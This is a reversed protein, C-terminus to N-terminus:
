KLYDVLSPTLVKAATALAAQYVYSKESYEVSAQAVDVDQLSSLVTTMATKDTENRSKAADLRNTKAGVVSRLSLVQSSIDDLKTLLTGTLDSVNTNSKLDNKIEILTNFLDSNGPGSSAASASVQFLSNGDTNVSMQVGQALPYDIQGGDGNYTIADGNRTLPQSSTSYGGFMYQSGNMSNGDEVMQSIIQDVQEGIAARDDATTTDTGGQLMLNRINQLSSSLSGLATDSISLFNEADGINSNYRDQAALSSNLTMIRSTAVPNDSPESVTKGSSMQNQANQLSALNNQLNNLTNTMLMHNTIRM